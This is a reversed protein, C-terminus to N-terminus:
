DSKSFHWSIKEGNGMGWPDGHCRGWHCGPAVQKCPPVKPWHGLNGCISGGRNPTQADINEWRGMSIRWFQPLRNPINPIYMWPISNNFIM